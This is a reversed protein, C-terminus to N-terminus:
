PYTVGTYHVELKFRYKLAGDLFFDVVYEREFADGLNSPLIYERYGVSQGVALFRYGNNVSDFTPNPFCNPRIQRAFTGTGTITQESQQRMMFNHGTTSYPVIALDVFTNSAGTVTTTTNNVNYRTVSSSLNPFNDANNGTVSIAAESTGTRRWYIDIAGGQNGQGANYRESTSIVGAGGPQGLNAFSSDKAILGTTPLGPLTTTASTLSALSAIRPM